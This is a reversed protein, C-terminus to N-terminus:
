VADGDSGATRQIGFVMANTLTGPGTGGPAWTPNMGIGAVTEWSGLNGNWNGSNADWGGRRPEQGGSETADPAGWREGGACAAVAVAVLVVALRHKM